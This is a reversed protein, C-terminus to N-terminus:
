VGLITKKVHSQWGKDAELATKPPYLTPTSLDGEEALIEDMVEKVELMDVCALAENFFKHVKVTKTDECADHHEM